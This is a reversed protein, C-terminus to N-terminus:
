GLGGPGGLGGQGGPGGPGGLGGPRGPNPGAGQPASPPANSEIDPSFDPLSQPVVCPFNMVLGYADTYSSSERELIKNFKNFKVLATLGDFCYKLNRWATRRIKGSQHYVEQNLEEFYRTTELYADHAKRVWRRTRPTAYPRTSKLLAMTVDRWLVFQDIYKTVWEYIKKIDQHVVKKGDLIDRIQITVRWKVNYTSAHMSEYDRPRGAGDDFFNGDAEALVLDKIMLCYGKLSFIGPCLAKVDHLNTFSGMSVQISKHNYFYERWRVKWAMVALDMARRFQEKKRRHTFDTRFPGEVLGSWGTGFSALLGDGVWNMDPSAGYPEDIEFNNVLTRGLSIACDFDYMLQAAANNGRMQTSQFQDDIDRCIEQYAFYNLENQVAEQFTYNTVNPIYLLLNWTGSDPQGTPAYPVPRTRWRSFETILEM